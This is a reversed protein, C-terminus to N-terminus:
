AAKAQAPIEPECVPVPNAKRSAKKISTKSAPEKGIYLQEYSAGLTYCRKILAEVQEETELQIGQEVMAVLEKRLSDPSFSSKGAMLALKFRPGDCNVWDGQSITKQKALLRYVGKLESKVAEAKGKWWQEQAKCEQYEQLMPQYEPLRANGFKPCAGSVDCYDCLPYFGKAHPVTDLTKKGERIDVIHRWVKDAIGMCTKLAIENPRYPGFPNVGAPPLNLLYGEIDVYDSSSPMKPGGLQRVLAPFSCHEAVMYTGDTKKVNFCPSSWLSKLMSLQAYLQTEQNAFICDRNKEPSKTEWVRLAPRPGGFPFVFDLHAMVPVNGFLTRIELQSIFFTDSDLLSKAIGDETWHGHAMRLHKQAIELILDHQGKTLLADIDGPTVTEPFVKKAVVSRPCELAAGIDSMGLYETRDGLNRETSALSHNVFMKTLFTIVNHIKTTNQCM